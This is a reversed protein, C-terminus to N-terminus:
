PLEHNVKGQPNGQAKMEQRRRARCEPCRKPLSLGIRIYHEAEGVSLIYSGGCTLCKLIVDQNQKQEM